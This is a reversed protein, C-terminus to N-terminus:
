KKKQLCLVSESIQNHTSNLRPSKPDPRPPLVFPREIGNAVRRREFHPEVEFPRHVAELRQREDQAGHELLQRRRELCVSLARNSRFLTTYPFLTSRPPRRIM